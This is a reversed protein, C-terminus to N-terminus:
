EGRLIKEIREAAEAVAQKIEKLKAPNLKGRHLSKGLLQFIRQLCDLSETMGCSNECYGTARGRCFVIFYEVM